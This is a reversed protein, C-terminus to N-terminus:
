ITVFECGTFAVDAAHLRTPEPVNAAGSPSGSCCLFQVRRVGTGTGSWGSGVDVYPGTPKEMGVCQFVGPGTWRRTEPKGGLVIPVGCSEVNGGTFVFHATRDIAVGARSGVKDGGSVRTNSWHLHTSRDIEVAASSPSGCGMILCDRLALAITLDARIGAPFGWVKVRDITLHALDYLDIGVDGAEARLILLERIVGSHPYPAPERPVDPGRCSVAAGPCAMRLTTREMGAGSLGFGIPLVLPTLLRFTGPGLVATGEAAVATVIRPTDDVNNGGPTLPM